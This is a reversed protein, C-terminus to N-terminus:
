RLRFYVLSGFPIKFVLQSVMVTTTIFLGIMVFTSANDFFNSLHYGISRFLQGNRVMMTMSGIQSISWSEGNRRGTEASDTRRGNGDVEM